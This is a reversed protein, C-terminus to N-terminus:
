KGICEVSFVPCCDLEVPKGGFKLVKVGVSTMFSKIIHMSANLGRKLSVDICSFMM